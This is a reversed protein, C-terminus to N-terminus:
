LDFIDTETLIKHDEILSLNPNTISITDSHNIVIYLYKGDGPYILRSLGSILVCFPEDIFYSEVKSRLHEVDLAELHSHGITPDYVYWTDIANESAFEQVFAGAQSGFDALAMSIGDTLGLRFARM